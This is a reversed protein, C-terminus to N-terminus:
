PNTIGAIMSLLPSTTGWEEPAGTNSSTTEFGKVQTCTDFDGLLFGLDAV